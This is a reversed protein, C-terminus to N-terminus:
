KKRLLKFLITAVIVYVVFFPIPDLGTGLAMGFLNLLDTIQAYKIPSFSQTLGLLIMIVIPILAWLIWSNIRKELKEVTGDLVCRIEGLTDIDDIKGERYQKQWYKTENDSFM